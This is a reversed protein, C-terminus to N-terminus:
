RHPHESKSDALDSHMAEHEEQTFAMSAAVTYPKVETILTENRLKLLAQFINDYVPVSLLDWNIMSYGKPPPSFYYSPAYVGKREQPVTGNPGKTTVFPFYSEDGDVFRDLNGKQTLHGETVWDRHTRNTFDIWPEMQDDNVLYFLAVCEAHGMEAMNMAHRQFHPLSVLPWQQGSGDAHAEFLTKTATLADLLDKMQGRAAEAVTRSFQAYQLPPSLLGLSPM